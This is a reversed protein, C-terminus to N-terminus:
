NNSIYFTKLEVSTLVSLFTRDVGREYTMHNTIVQEGNVYLTAEPLLTYSQVDDYVNIYVEQHTWVVDFQQVNLLSWLLFFM